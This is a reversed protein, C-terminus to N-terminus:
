FQYWSQMHTDSVTGKEDIFLTHLGGAAVAELGAGKGGLSGEAIQAELWASKKPKGFEGLFGTGMGFQGFNGAGWAFLQPAPRPHAPIAPVPNFPPHPESVEHLPALGNIHPKTASTRNNSRSPPKRASVPKPRAEKVPEAHETRKRKPPPSPDPSAARKAPQSRPPRVPQKQPPQTSQPKASAARSSRRLAMTNPLSDLPRDNPQFLAIVHRPARRHCKRHYRLCDLRLVM